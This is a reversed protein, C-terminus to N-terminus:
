WGSQLSVRSPDFGLNRMVACLLPMVATACSVEETSYGTSLEEAGSGVKRINCGQPTFDRVM